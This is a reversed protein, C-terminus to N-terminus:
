AVRPEKANMYGSLQEKGFESTGALRADRATRPQLSRGNRGYTEKSERLDRLSLARELARKKLRTM